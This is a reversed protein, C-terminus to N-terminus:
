KKGSPAPPSPLLIFMLGPHFQSFREKMRMLSPTVFAPYSLKRDLDEFLTDNNKREM